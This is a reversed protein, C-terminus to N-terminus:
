AVELESQDFNYGSAREQDWDFSVTYKFEGPSVCQRLVVRGVEYHFPGPAVVAVLEGVDFIPYNTVEKRRKLEDSPM